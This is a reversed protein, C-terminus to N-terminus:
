EVDQRQRLTTRVLEGREDAADGSPVSNSHNEGVDASPLPTHWRWLSMRVRQADSMEQFIERSVWDLLANWYRKDATRNIRGVLKRLKNHDFTARRWTYTESRSAYLVRWGDATEVEIQLRAPDTQPVAFLAWAQDTGLTRRLGQWPGLLTRRADLYGRALGWSLEELEIPSLAVGVAGLIRSWERFQRAAVPSKWAARNGMATSGPLGSLLLLLALGPLAWRRLRHCYRATRM